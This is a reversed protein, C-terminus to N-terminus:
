AVRLGPLSWAQNGIITLNRGAGASERRYSFLIEPACHTCHNFSAIHHPAIGSRRLQKGITQWLDMHMRDHVPEHIADIVEQGVEFCCPGIAPGVAVRIDRAGLQRMKEITHAAIEGAVGRWGAHIAAMIPGDWALLPLCDATRVCLLKDPDCSVIADAQPIEDEALEEAIVVRNGHVQELCFIETEPLLLQLHDRAARPTAPLGESAERTAFLGRM